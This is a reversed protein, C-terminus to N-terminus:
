QKSGGLLSRPLSSPLKGTTQYVEQVYTALKIINDKTSASLDSRSSLSQATVNLLGELNTGLTSLYETVVPSNVEVNVTPVAFEVKPIAGQHLTLNHEEKQKSGTEVWNKFILTDDQATFLDRKVRKSVKDGVVPAIPAVTVKTEIEPQEVSPNAVKVPKTVPLTEPQTAVSGSNDAGGRDTVEKNETSPVISAQDKEGQEVVEPQNAGQNSQEVGASGQQADQASDKGSNQSEEAEPQKQTDKKVDYSGKDDKPEGQTSSDDKGKDEAIEINVPTEQATPKSDIPASESSTSSPLTPKSTEQAAVSKEEVPKEEKKEPTEVQQKDQEEKTAQEQEQTQDQTQKQEQTDQKEVPSTQVENSSSSGKSVSEEKQKDKHQDTAQQADKPNQEPKKTESKQPEAKPAEPTSPQEVETSTDKKEEEVVAKNWTNSENTLKKGTGASLSAKLSEPATNNIATVNQDGTVTLTTVNFTNNTISVDGGKANITVAATNAKDGLISKTVTISGNATNLALKKSLLSTNNKVELDVKSALDLKDTATITTNQITVKQQNDLVTSSAVPTIDVVSATITSNEITVAKTQNPNVVFTHTPANVTINSIEINQNSNNAATPKIEIKGGKNTSTVTETITVGRMTLQTYNSFLLSGNSVDIDADEFTVHSNKIENEWQAAYQVPNENLAFTGSAIASSTRNKVTTITFKSRYEQQTIPDVYKGIHLNDVNRGWITFTPGTIEIGRLEVTKTDKNTVFMTPGETSTFSSNQVTLTANPARMSVCLELASQIDIGTVTANAKHVTLGNVNSAQTSTTSGQKNLGVTAESEKGNPDFTAVYFGLRKEIKATINSVTLDNQSRFSLVLYGKNQDDGIYAGDTKAQGDTQSLTVTNNHLWKTIMQDTVVSHGITQITNSPVTTSLNVYNIEGNDKFNTAKGSDTLQKNGEESGRPTDTYSTSSTATANLIHLNKTYISVIETGSLKSPDQVLTVNTDPAFFSQDSNFYLAGGTGSEKTAKASFTGAVDLYKGEFRIIGGQNTASANISQGKDLSVYTSQKYKPDIKKLTNAELSRDVGVFVNGATGYSRGRQIRRTAAETTIASTDIKSGTGLHIRDGAIVVNGAKISGTGTVATSITANNIVISDGGNAKNYASRLFNTAKGEETTDAGYLTIGGTADIKIQDASKATAGLATALGNTNGNAVQNGLLVAKNGLIEGLNIAQNGAKVTYVIHPDAGSAITISKGALLYVTGGVAKLIGSNVVQGGILALNGSNSVTIVGQNLIKAVKETQQTEQSSKEQEFVLQNAKFNDDTIDLTSAVLGAVDVTAKDGFIVGAPNIIFVKGNSQLKGLIKTVDGGVVRNLVASNANNQIFNLIENADIGFKQWKLITHDQTVTIKTTTGEVAKTAAGSVVDFTDSRLSDALAPTAGLMGLSLMSLCLLGLKSSKATTLQATIFSSSPRKDTNSAETTALESVAILAKAKTSFKLKYIRNM